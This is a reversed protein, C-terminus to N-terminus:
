GNLFSRLKEIFTEIIKLDDSHGTIYNLFAISFSTLFITGVIILIKKSYKNWVTTKLIRGTNLFGKELTEIKGLTVFM